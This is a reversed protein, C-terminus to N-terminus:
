HTPRASPHQLRPLVKQAYFEIVARQDQQASHINVISIGSARLEQIKQVHAAPDDNVVWDELVKSIPVDQEALREIEAPSPINHYGQFAKPLFRWLAAAYEAEAYDGVVVFLETMVPMEAPNRGAARAGSEWASKHQKWTQPDTILGDGHQGALRMAKPGNAATLLPIPRPPPDYLLGDVQYYRGHHRVPEGKWLGRIIHLAEILRDWRERWPPWQGTAAQENLAEGSGVGLYIRGPTLLSLSAFAQAVVAPHYRLTPCTVMTGMWLQRTRAALAGLTVWAEGAHRENSQWPQFHDSTSILDFGAREAQEGLSVLEHVPFQEHSLVFGIMQARFDPQQRTGDSSAHRSRSPVAQESTVV